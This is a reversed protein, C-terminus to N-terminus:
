FPWFRKISIQLRQQPSYLVSRKERLFIRFLFLDIKVFSIYLRSTNKISGKDPSTYQMNKTYLEMFYVYYEAEVSTFLQYANQTNKVQMEVFHMQYEIEVHSCLISIYKQTNKAQKEM